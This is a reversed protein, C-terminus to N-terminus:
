IGGDLMWTGAANDNRLALRLMQREGSPSRLEVMVYVGAYGESRFTDRVAVLSHGAYQAFLAATDYASLAERASGSDRSTIATVIRRAAASASERRAASSGPASSSAASSSASRMDTWSHSGRPIATAMPSVAAPGYEMGRSYLILQRRGGAMVWFRLGLLRGTAADFTYERINDLYDQSHLRSLLPHPNYKPGSTVTLTVTSDTRETAYTDGSRQGARMKEYSMLQAIDAIMAFYDIINDTAPQILAKDRGTWWQYQAQGDCVVYHSGGKGLSWTRRGGSAAACLRHEVFPADPDIYNFNEDPLTRVMLTASFNLGHGVAEIASAFLSTATAARAGAASLNYLCIGCIIVAAVAAAAASLWRRLRPSRSASPKIAPRPTLMGVVAAFEQYYRRCDDCAAIHELLPATDNSGGNGASGNLDFLDEIRNRFEDCRM